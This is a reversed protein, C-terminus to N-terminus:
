ATRSLGRREWDSVEFASGREAGVTLVLTGDEEAVAAREVAPDPVFLATGAPADVTEGGVDFRARGRVVVYLEEHRQGTANDEDHREIVEAGAREGRWANVGFAGIGLADRLPLWADSSPAPPLDDLAVTRYASMGVVM